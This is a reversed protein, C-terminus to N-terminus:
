RLLSQKMKKLQQAVSTDYRRDGVDLVFGGIIGPDIKVILEVNAKFDNQIHAKIDDLTAQSLPEATALRAQIVNHEERYLEAFKMAILYMKDERHKDVVLSVFDKLFPTIREGFATELLSKRDKPGIIPNRFVANMEAMNQEFCEAFGILQVYVDNESGIEKATNYLARAYRVSIKGDNM